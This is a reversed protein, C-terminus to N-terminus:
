DRHTNPGPKGGPKRMAGLFSEDGFIPPPLFTGAIYGALFLGIGLIVVFKVGVRKKTGSM